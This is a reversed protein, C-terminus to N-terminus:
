PRVRGETGAAVIDREIRAKDEERGKYHGATSKKYFDSIQAETWVKKQSGDTAPAGQPSGQGASPSVLGELTLTAPPVAAGEPTNAGGEPANEQPNRTENAWDTFFKTVGAVNGEDHAKLLMTAKTVGGTYPIEAGLWELFRPDTNIKRWDKVANDLQAYFTLTETAAVRNGTQGLQAELNSVQTRLEQVMPSSAAVEAAKRGVMDMFEEGYENVEEETILSAPKIVEEKPPNELKHVANNLKDTLDRVDQSLRPVEADYKGQLVHYKQKWDNKPAAEAEPVADPVVTLDPAAQRDASPEGVEALLAEIDANKADAIDAVPDTETGLIKKQIEEAAAAAERVQKPPATKHAANAGM